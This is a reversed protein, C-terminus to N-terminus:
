FVIKRIQRRNYYHNVFYAFLFVLVPRMPFMYRQESHFIFVYLLSWCWLLLLPLLIQYKKKRALVFISGIAFLILIYNVANIYIHIGYKMWNSKNSKMLPSIIFAQSQFFKLGYQRLTLVPNSIIDNAVWKIYYTTKDLNDANCISDLEKRKELNHLYDSSAFKGQGHQPLWNFPEDRLEFRSWLLHKRFIDKKFAGDTTNINKEILTITFMMLGLSLIFIMKNKSEIKLTLFYVLFFLLFPLLNPRTGSMIVLSFSLCLINKVSNSNNKTIKLWAYLFLSVGFFAASEALIGMAYYIHIPFLNLIVVSWFKSMNSFGLLDFSAFLYKISWCSIICNFVIGFVYFVTDNHFVYALSYPPLYYFLPFLGKDIRVDGQFGNIIYQILQITGEHYEGDGFPKPKFPLFYFVLCFLATIGVPHKVVFDFIRKM